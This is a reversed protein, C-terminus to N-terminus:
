KLSSDGCHNSIHTPSSIVPSVYPIGLNLGRLLILIGVLFLAVPTAKRIRNRWTSNLLQGLISVTFMLPVTGLGYLAMFLAGGTVSQTALAGLLAIYVLGCPLLGNVLGILFLSYYTKKGFMNGMFKSNFVSFSSGIWKEFWTLSIVASVMIAVGAGISISQQLGALKLGSGFMGFLIGLLTYTFVRGLSYLLKSFLRQLPTKGVNPLALAIPGCMGVCHFSSLLGTILATLFIM